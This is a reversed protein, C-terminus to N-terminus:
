QTQGFDVQIVNDKIEKVKELHEPKLKDEGVVEALTELSVRSIGMDYVEDFEEQLTGILGQMIIYTPDYNDEVKIDRTAYARISFGSEEDEEPELVLYYRGKLLSAQELIMLKEEFDDMMGGV